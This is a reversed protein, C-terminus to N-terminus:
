IFSSFLSEKSDHIDTRRKKICQLICRLTAVVADCDVHMVTWVPLLVVGLGVLGWRPRQTHRPWHHCVHTCGGVGVLEEVGGVPVTFVYSCVVWRRLGGGSLEGGSLEGGDM